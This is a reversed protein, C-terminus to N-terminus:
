TELDGQIILPSSFAPEEPIIPLANIGIFFSEIVQGVKRDALIHHVTM